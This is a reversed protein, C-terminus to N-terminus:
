LEDTYRDTGFVTPIFPSALAITGHGAEEIARGLSRYHDEWVTRPDEVSFALYLVRNDNDSPVDKPSDPDLPLPSACLSVNGPCGRDRLFAALDTPDKGSALDIIMAVAGGYHRDLALEIPMTSGDDHFEADFRYFSTHVHDRATFMRGQEHLQNVQRVAWDNWASHHGKLIWYLALYSGLALDFRGSGFRLAKCDRTAVFRNGAITYQGILCGAYFHDREYWRNYAVEHGKHPEVLSFLLSGLRIPREDLPASERMEM